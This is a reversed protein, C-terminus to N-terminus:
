NGETVSASLQPEASPEEEPEEEEPNEGRATASSM